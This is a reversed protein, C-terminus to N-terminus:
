DELADRLRSMVTRQGPALRVRTHATSLAMDYVDLVADTVTSWDYRRVEADAARRRADAADVDTLTDVIVRALDQSDGNRFLAGYRGAGLVDSFATLDSAIVHTGAAMAEVLVIGFSEGGTQPAVYCTASALLAAKDEDSVGGLFTVQEGFRALAARQEGADGRGAVLFRTGPLAELVAPVADALVAGAVVATSSSGLGRCLPIVNHCELALGRPSLGWEACARLYSEVVMNSGADALEDAGEGIVDCVFQGEPLLERVNFVNYLSLAMGLTDFGSGLNASTAPVRLSLLPATGRKRM